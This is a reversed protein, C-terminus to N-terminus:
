LCFIYNRRQALSRGAYVLCAALGFGFLIMVVAILTLFGGVVRADPDRRDMKGSLLAIGFVLHIVPFLSFLAVIGALVYHFISLLRLHEGDRNAISDNPHPNM